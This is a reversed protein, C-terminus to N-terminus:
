WIMRRVVDKVWGGVAAEVVARGLEGGHLRDYGGEIGPCTNDDGDEGDDNEGDNTSEELCVVVGHHTRLFVGGVASGDSGRDKTGHGDIASEEDKAGALSIQM